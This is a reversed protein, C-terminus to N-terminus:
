RTHLQRGAGLEGAPSQVRAQDWSGAIPARLTQMRSLVGCMGARLMKTTIPSAAGCQNPKKIKWLWPMSVTGFPLRTCHPDWQWIVRIKLPILFARTWILLPLIKESTNFKTPPPPLFVNPFVHLTVTWSIYIHRCKCVCISPWM